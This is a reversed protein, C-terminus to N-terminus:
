LEEIVKEQNPFHHLADMVMIRDISNSQFPLNESSTSSLDQIGKKKAEGLMTLSLDVLYLNSVHKRLDSSVRGTGGGVDLLSVENSLELVDVMEAPDRDGIVRDYIPALIDFLINIPM